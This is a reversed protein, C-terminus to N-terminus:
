VSGRQSEINQLLVKAKVIEAKGRSSRPIEAKGGMKGEFCSIVLTYLQM